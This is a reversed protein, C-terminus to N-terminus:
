LEKQRVPKSQFARSVPGALADGIYKHAFVAGLAAVQAAALSHGFTLVSLLVSLVKRLTTVTAVVLTGSERLLRYVCLMGAAKSATFFLVDRYVSPHAAAFSHAVALDNSYLCACLALLGQWGNMHLMLEFESSSAQVLALQLGAYVGDAVLALSVLAVGRLTTAAGSSKSDAGTLFFAAVGFSMVAVGLTKALSHRKTTLLREGIVVPIAKCSKFTVHVPYSLHRLSALGCWHSAYYAVIVIAWLKLPAPELPEAAKDVKARRARTYVLAAAAALAAGTSQFLILVGEAQFRLGDPHPRTLSEQCLSSVSFSALVGLSLLLQTFASGEAPAAAM